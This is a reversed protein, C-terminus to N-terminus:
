ELILVMIVICQNHCYIISLMLLHFYTISCLYTCYFHLLNMPGKSRKIRFTQMMKFTQFTIKKFNHMSLKNFLFFQGYKGYSWSTKDEQVVTSYAWSTKDWKLYYTVIYFSDASRSCCTLEKLGKMYRSFSVFDSNRNTLIYQVFYASFDLWISTM